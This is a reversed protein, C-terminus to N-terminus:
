FHLQLDNFSELFGVELENKSTVLLYSAPGNKHAVGIADIPINPFYDTISGNFTAQNWFPDYTAFRRGDSL